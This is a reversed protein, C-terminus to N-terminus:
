RLARSLALCRLVKCSVPGCCPEKTFPYSVGRRHHRNKLVVKPPRFRRTGPISRKLLEVDAPGQEIIRRHADEEMENKPRNRGNDRDRGQRTSAAIRQHLSSGLRLSFQKELALGVMDAHPFTDIGVQNERPVRFQGGSCKSSNLHVRETSCTCDRVILSQVLPTRFYEILRFEEGKTVMSSNRTQIPRYGAPVFNM